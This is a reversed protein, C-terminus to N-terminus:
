LRLDLLHNQATLERRSLPDILDLQGFAESGAATRHTLGQTRQLLAAQYAGLAIPAGEHAFYRNSLRVLDVVHAFHEILQDTTAQRLADTGVSEVLQAPQEPLHIRGGGSRVELAVARQVEFKM